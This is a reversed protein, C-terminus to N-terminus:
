YEFELPHLWLESLTDSDVQLSDMLLRRVEMLDRRVPLGGEDGLYFFTFAFDIFVVEPSNGDDGICLIQNVHWDGQSIGAARLARVGHRVQM